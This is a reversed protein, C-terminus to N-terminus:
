DMRINAARVVKENAQMEASLFANFDQPNLAAAYLGLRMLGDRVEPADLARLLEVSLREIAAPPMSTRGVAGFWNIAEFGPFGSEHLTPITPMVASREISTVAIGRLKGFAVFPAAESVNGLLITTHGGMVAVAAPGGGQYPVNVIDIGAAARLKEGALRQFGTPSATGYTLEGPKARALAILERPTQAPLSPHVSFLLPNAALRAIGTFDQATDYPLKSRAFPNITFSPGMLLLTHGDAPARAVIDVGIVTGGGPRDDVIVNQGLARSLPQSLLRGIIDITGGAAFPVVMRVPKVPVWQAAAPGAALIAALFGPTVSRCRM